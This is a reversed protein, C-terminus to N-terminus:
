DLLVACHGPTTPRTDGAEYSVCNDGCHSCVRTQPNKIRKSRRHYGSKFCGSPCALYYDYDRNKKSHCSSPDAGLRKAWKTWPGGHGSYGDAEWSCVHAMEHRVTDNFAERGSDELVRPNIIISHEGDCEVKGTVRKGFRQEELATHYCCLGNKREWRAVGVHVDHQPIPMSHNHYLREVEREAVMLADPTAM